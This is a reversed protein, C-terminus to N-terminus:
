LDQDSLRGRGCEHEGGARSEWQEAYLARASDGRLKTARGRADGDQADWEQAQVQFGTATVNRVRVGAPQTDFNSLPGAIVIPDTITQGFSVSGWQGTVGSVRAAKMVFDAPQLLGIQRLITLQDVVPVDSPLGWGITFIATFASSSTLMWWVGTSPRWVAVDTRGDGDYDGPVPVDGPLGWGITFIATFASSSTLMWWVGTSPRWVAVDTRGDGDYDGPVPVDGPLGWGITFIATFASSSTLMWWVGTSPRWM